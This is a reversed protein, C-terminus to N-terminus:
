IDEAGCRPAAGDAWFPRGAVSKPVVQHWWGHACESRNAMEDAISLGHAAFGADLVAIAARLEAQSAPDSGRVDRCFAGAFRAVDPQLAQYAGQALGWAQMWEQAVKDAAADPALTSLKAATGRMHRMLEARAHLTRAAIAAARMHLIAARAEDQMEDVPHTM